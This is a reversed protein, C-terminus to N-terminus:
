DNYGEMQIDSETTKLGKPAIKRRKGLWELFLECNHPYDFGCKRNGARNKKTGRHACSKTNTAKYPCIVKPM